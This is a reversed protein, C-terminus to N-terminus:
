AAIKPEVSVSRADHQRMGTGRVERQPTRTRGSKTSRADQQEPVSDSNNGSDERRECSGGNITHKNSIDKSPDTNDHTAKADNPNEEEMPVPGEGPHSHETNGLNVVVESTNDEKKAKRPTAEKGDANCDSLFASNNDDIITSAAAFDPTPPVGKNARNNASSFSSGTWKESPNILKRANIPSIRPGHANDHGTVKKVPGKTHVGLAYSSQTKHQEGQPSYSFLQPENCVARVNNGNSTPLSVYVSQRARRDGNKRARYGQSEQPQALVTGHNRLTEFLEASHQKAVNIGVLACAFLALWGAAASKPPKREKNTSKTAITQSAPM